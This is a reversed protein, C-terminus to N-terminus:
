SAETAGRYYVSTIKFEKTGQIHLCHVVVDILNRVMIDLKDDPIGRGDPHSQIMLKLPTWPDREEAHWTTLCGTFGAALMQILALGEGGRIEQLAVRDPRLRKSLKVLDAAEIGVSGFLLSVRNRLHALRGFEDTDEITILREDPPIDSLLRRVFHTKGSRVKGVAAISRHERVAMRFFEAWRKQRHLERLEADVPDVRDLRTEAASTLAAFDADRITHVDQTPNRASFAIMGPPTVPPRCITFRQGRPLTTECIPHAGDFRKSLMSAALIGVADLRRFDYEPVSRWEWKGGREIAVEGPRQLSVEITAPDSLDDLIPALLYNLTTEGNRLTM